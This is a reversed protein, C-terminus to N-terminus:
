IQVKQLQQSDEPSPVYAIQVNIAGISAIMITLIM